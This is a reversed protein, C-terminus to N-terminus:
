SLSPGRLNVLVGLSKLTQPVQTDKMTIKGLLILMSRPVVHSDRFRVCLKDGFDSPFSLHIVRIYFCRVRFKVYVTFMDRLRIPKNSHQELISFPM